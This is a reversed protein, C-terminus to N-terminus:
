SLVDRPGEMFGMKWRFTPFEKLIGQRAKSGKAIQLRVDHM